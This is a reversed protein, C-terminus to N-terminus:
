PRVPGFPDDPFYRPALKLVNRHHQERLSPPPIANFVERTWKDNGPFIADIRVVTGPFFDNMLCDRYEIMRQHWMRAELQYFIAAGRNGERRREDQLRYYHEIMRSAHNFSRLIYAHETERPSKNLVRKM